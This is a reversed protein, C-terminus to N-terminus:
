SIFFNFSVVEGVHLGPMCSHCRSRGPLFCHLCPGLQHIFLSQNPISHSLPDVIHFLIFLLDLSVLFIRLFSDLLVIYEKDRPYIDNKYEQIKTLQNTPMILSIPVHQLAM